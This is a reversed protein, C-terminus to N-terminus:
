QMSAGLQDLFQRAESYEELPLKLVHEHLLDKMESIQRKIKPTTEGADGTKFRTEFLTELNKRSEEFDTAKLLTPWQIEGTSPNLKRHNLPQARHSAIFAEARAEAAHQYEVDEARAALRARFIARRAGFLKEQNDIYLTRAQEYSIMAKSTQRNYQGESRILNSMGSYAANTYASVPDSVFVSGGGGGGVSGGDGDTDTTTATGATSAVGSGTGGASSQLGAAAPVPQGNPLTNMGPVMGSGFLFGNGGNQIGGTAANGSIGGNAQPAYWQCEAMKPIAVSVAIALSLQIVALRGAFKNQGRM